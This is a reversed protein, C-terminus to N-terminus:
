LLKPLSADERLTGERSTVRQVRKGREMKRKKKKQGVIHTEGKVIIM